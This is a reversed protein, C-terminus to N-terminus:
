NESSFSCKKLDIHKEFEYLFNKIISKLTSAANDGLPCFTNDSIKEIVDILLDIDGKEGHGMEIRELIKRLWSVGERCPTCKGCSEKEFFKMVRWAVKVMCISEDFVIIAGTGLRSGYGPLSDFDMQCDIEDASFIASSVGGPFIAKLRNNGKIGGAHYHIIDRLYTGMPLEYLGPKNVCGSVSFLKPGPSESEGIKIYKEAGISIILPINAFTEVNSVVTPRGWLGENLPLPPKLRPRGTNGELSEILATEEGCIYGGSTSFIKIKFDFLLEQINKGVLRKAYAQELAKAFCNLAKVYENRIYIIGESAGLAFGAIVMGEIVLHPNKEILIRDKFLGPESENANCVLFKPFRKISLVFSWKVGTLIGIGGRGRLKSRQVIDVIEAPTMTLAKKLSEYGHNNCYFEIDTSKESDINKLLFPEM